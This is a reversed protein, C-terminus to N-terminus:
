RIHDEAAEQHVGRHPPAKRSGNGGSSIPVVVRRRGRTERVDGHDIASGSPSIGDPGQAYGQDVGLERHWLIAGIAGSGQVNSGM